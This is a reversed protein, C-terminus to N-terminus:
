AAKRASLLSYGNPLMERTIDVFGADGLWQRHQQETYPQGGEYLNLALLGFNVATPPSLGGDDLVHGMIYLQGDPQLATATTAIAAQADGPALVQIFRNCVAVDYVGDIPERTVDAALVSVRRFVHAYEGGRYREARERVFPVVQPLDVVTVRVAPLHEAITMALGGTGGGVDLLSRCGSLDRASLLLRAASVAGSDSGSLFERMQGESMQAFDHRAQPIGSRISRATLLEAGWMDAWLSYVSGMYGPKGRVLFQAAEPSNAFRDAQACLLGTAALVRVMPLLRDAGVGVRAALQGATLPGGALPTFVDLDMAALMALAQPVARALAQITVPQSSESM